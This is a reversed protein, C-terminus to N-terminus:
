YSIFFSIFKTVLVYFVRSLCKDSIYILIHTLYKDCYINFFFDSCLYKDIICLFFYLHIFFIVLCYNTVVVNFFICSFYEESIYILFFMIFIQKSHFFFSVCSM